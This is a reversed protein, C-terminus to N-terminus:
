VPQTEQCHGNYGRAMTKSQRVEEGAGDEKKSGGGKLTKQNSLNKQLVSSKTEWGRAVLSLELGRKVKGSSM